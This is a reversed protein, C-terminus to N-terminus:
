VAEHQAGESPYDALWQSLYEATHSRLRVSNEPDLAEPVGQAALWSALSLHGELERLLRLRLKYLSHQTEVDKRHLHPEFMSLTYRIEEREYFCLKTCALLNKVVQRESM